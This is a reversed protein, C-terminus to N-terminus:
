AAKRVMAHTQKHHIRCLWVVDLPSSYDPHHAEASEGCVLCPLPVIHGSRVHSQLIRRAKDREPYKKAWNNRAMVRHPLMSRKKDIARFYDIHDARYAKVSEMHCSKCKNSLRNTKKDKIYFDSPPKDTLCKSCKKMFVKFRCM